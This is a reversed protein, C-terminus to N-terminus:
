LTSCVNNTKFWWLHEGKSNRVQESVLSIYRVLVICLVASMNSILNEHSLMVGKPNGTIGILLWLYGYLQKTYNGWCKGVRWTGNKWKAKCIINGLLTGVGSSKKLFVFNQSQFGGLFGAGHQCIYLHLCTWVNAAMLQKAYFCFSYVTMFESNM